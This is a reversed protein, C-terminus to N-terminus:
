LLPTKYPMGAEEKVLRPVLYGPLERRLHEMLALAQAPDVEFRQAGRVRDLLHLYYPLAGAAFSRQMLTLLTEAQNNVGRLLVAQNLLHAGSARLMSLARDVEPDFEAAHNAHLVMVLPWPLREIWTLLAPTVRDPLVLPLRTHVRLRRLHPLEGLQRTLDDLQRTSLMLPDGGSLIVEEIEPHARLYAMAEQWRRGPAREEVYPFEQRFCYRCHVACAGTSILLVRGRYKHLVGPARRSSLDGVPDSRFGEIHQNEDADPLVQRLLPDSRDARRMRRAYALPVLMPFKFDPEPELPLDLFALLTSPSRIATRIQLRWDRGFDSAVNGAPESDESRALSHPQNIQM